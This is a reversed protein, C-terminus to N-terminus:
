YKCCVICSARCTGQAGASLENRKDARLQSGAFGKIPCLEQTSLFLLYSNEIGKDMDSIIICFERMNVKKLRNKGM